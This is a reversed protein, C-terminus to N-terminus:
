LKRDKEIVAAVAKHVANEFGFEKLAEVGEITTGGPSTVQDMLAIPHEGSDMILKASGWVSAAAAELALDRPMGAKVGARALADVYMYSFAPSASAVASFAAFLREPVRLARGVTSFIGEALALEKEGAHQGACLATVASLCKANINPMARVVHIGPVAAEYFGTEKGAAITIVPKDGPQIKALVDGMMQPKVALVLADAKECVEKESGCVLDMGLAQARGEAVDYGALCDEAFKGSERMGRLIASAMNGLGIFGYIM